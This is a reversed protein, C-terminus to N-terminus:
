RTAFHPGQTEEVLTTVIMIDVSVLARTRRIEVLANLTIRTLNDRVQANLSPQERIRKKSHQFTASM